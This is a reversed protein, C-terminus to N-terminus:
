VEKMSLQITDPNFLKELMQYMDQRKKLTDGSTQKLLNYLELLRLASMIQYDGRIQEQKREQWSKEKLSNKSSDQNEKKEEERKTKFNELSGKLNKERGFLANFWAAETTPPYKQEIIFDPVVGEQQISVNGALEYFAITLKLASDNSVPIVEQVSGKGFTKTGIVFVNLPKKAAEQKAYIQLCGALIEAASATFNNVLIFLPTEGIELPANTTKYEELVKNNRGKTTVVLSNKPIFLGAIDVVVNLLGGSNNRLDLILGKSKNALIKKLLDELQTKSNEAFITLALYYIDHQDFYYSLAQQEKVVDRIIDFSMLKNTDPRVIKIHVASNRKGKLKAIAEEVTMGKLSEEGIQVIKDGAQIGAKDAPGSPITDVVLLFEDDTEKTHNIIIGIGFFEGSTTQLLDKYAEPGFCCSHPDNSVFSNISRLIAEVPDIEQFYKDKVLAFADAYTLMWQHLVDDYPRKEETPGNTMKITKHRAFSPVLFCVMFLSAIIKNMRAVGKAFSDINLSDGVM